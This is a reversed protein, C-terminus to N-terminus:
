AKASYPPNTPPYSGGLYNPTKASSGLTIELYNPTEHAQTPHGLCGWGPSYNGKQSWGQPTQATDRATAATTHHRQVGHRFRSRYQGQCHDQCWIKVVHSHYQKMTTSVRQLKQTFNVKSTTCVHVQVGAAAKVIRNPVQPELYNPIEATTPHPHSGWM